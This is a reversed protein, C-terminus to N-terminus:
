VSQKYDTKARVVIAKPTCPKLYVSVGVCDCVDTNKNQKTQLYKKFIYYIHIVM